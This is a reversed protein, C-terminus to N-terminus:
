GAAPLSTYGSDVTYHWLESGDSMQLAYLKPPPPSESAGSGAMVYLVGNAAIPPWPDSLDLSKQWLRVGDSLRLATITGPQGDESVYIVNGVIVHGSVFGSFEVSWALSGDQPRLALITNSAEAVVFQDSVSVNSGGMGIRQPPMYQWKTAGTVADLATVKGGSNTYVVGNAIAVEASSDNGAPSQWRVSGDRESLAVYRINPNCGLTSLVVIGAGAALNNPHDCDGGDFDHHWLLTGDAVQYAEVRTDRVVFIMNADVYLTPAGAYQNSTLAETHWREKGDQASLAVLSGSTLRRWFSEM